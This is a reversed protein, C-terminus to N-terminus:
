FDEIEPEPGAFKEAYKASEDLSSKRTTKACWTYYEEVGMSYRKNYAEVAEAYQTEKQVQPCDGPWIESCKRGRPDCWRVHYTNEDFDAYAMSPCEFCKTMKKRRTLFM